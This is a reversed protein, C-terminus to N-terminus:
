CSSGGDRSEVILTQGDRRDVRVELLGRDVREAPTVDSGDRNLVRVESSDVCVLLVVRDVENTKEAVSAIRTDGSLRIGKSAFARQARESEIRASGGLYILPDPAADPAVRRANLAAVYKRYTDEAERYAQEGATVSATPVASPSSSPAPTPACATLLSGALVIASLAAGVGNREGM